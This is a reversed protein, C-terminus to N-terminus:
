IYVWVEIISCMRICTVYHAVNSSNLSYKRVEHECLFLFWSSNNDWYFYIKLCKVFNNKSIKLTFWFFLKFHCWYTFDKVFFIKRTRKWLFHNSHNLVIQLSSGLKSWSSFIGLQILNNKVNEMKIRTMM